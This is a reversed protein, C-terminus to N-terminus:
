DPDLYELGVKVIGEDLDKVWRLQAAMPGITNIKVLCPMGVGLQEPDGPGVVVLACGGYAEEIVLGATDAEFEIEGPKRDTFQLYAVEVEDPRFRIHRRQERSKEGM